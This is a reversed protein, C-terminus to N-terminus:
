VGMWDEVLGTTKVWLAKQKAESIEEDLSPYRSSSHGLEVGKGTKTYDKGDRAKQRTGADQGMSVYWNM